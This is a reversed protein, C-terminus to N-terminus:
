ALKEDYSFAAVEEPTGLPHVGEFPVDHLYVPHWDGILQNYLPAVYREGAEERSSRAPYYREYAEQFLESSGFYYLGITAHPSIRRKERVEVVRGSGDARAFSWAEGAGPFCPIWGAGRAAARPLYRPEVFTDINYILLPATAKGPLERVALLATTAQGDTTRDLELIRPRGIGLRDCQQRIFDAAQDEARAVFIFRTAPGYFGCLSELSWAFLTRGGVVIQFKPLDYGANRFRLGQGAMTIVIDLPSDLRSNRPATM